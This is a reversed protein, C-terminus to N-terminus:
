EDTMSKLLNLAAKRRAEFDEETFTKGESADDGPLPLLEQPSITRDSYPTLMVCGLWRTRELHARERMQELKAWGEYASFFESIDMDYLDSLPLRMM